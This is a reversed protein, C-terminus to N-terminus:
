DQTQVSLTVSIPSNNSGVAQSQLFYITPVPPLGSLKYPTNGDFMGADSGEFGGGAAPSNTALQFQGDTSNGTAGVFVTSMDVNSQNGNTTGFQTANGLNHELLNGSGGLIGSTMINNLYLCDTTTVNGAIVNNQILAGNSLTNLSMAVLRNNTIILGGVAVSFNRIGVNFNQTILTNSTGTTLNVTGTFCNTPFLNRRILVNPVRVTITACINFEVGQISSGISGNQFDIAGVKATQTNAQTNPNQTLFYGPGIIHLQKTLALNGYSFPSGEVHLTDGGSAGDHAAQLTSFDADIGPNNNVRLIAGSASFGWSVTLLVIGFLIVNKM